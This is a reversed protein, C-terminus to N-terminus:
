GGAALALAGHARRAPTRAERLSAADLLLNAAWRHVNGFQVAKRLIRMRRRQEDAPMELACHLAQAVQATHYPNVILAQQLEQSAGAFRSLVLVGSEDDRAAVFEKSVLNMGDHLSTVLCVDAARYLANVADKDHHADLLVIPASGDAGSGFRRNIRKVQATVQKRLDAYDQLCERTPAAVQVFRLRGQWKPQDLLLQEIALLREVLGKTYDFRDVSVVLKGNNPLSWRHLASRRCHAVGPQALVEAPTPWAISIPYSKAQWAHRLTHRRGAAVPGELAHGCLAATVVFNRRHQETQFGVIDSGLLGGVLEDLWPCTQMQEPHGWPVHWFSLITARPLQQRVLAPVLALHYDQVLVIPDNQRTEEVVAQAFRRNVARYQEWDTEVFRPKTHALHCLPWLAGNSLGDGHGVREAESLWIHRLAYGGGGPVGPVRWVDGADVVERDATGSGHAIWIGNCAQVVPEMATVLGSSPRVARLAGDIREHSWPARNSVVIIQADNLRTHVLRRLAPADWPLAVGVAAVGGGVRTRTILNKVDM